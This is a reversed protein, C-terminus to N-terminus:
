YAHFRSGISHEPKDLGSFFRPQPDPLNSIKVSSGQASDAAPLVPLLSVDDVWATGSIRSDDPNSSRLRVVCMELVSVQKPAEWTLSVRTWPTTGTVQATTKEQVERNEPTLLTFFIGRDTTLEKAKLWASFQYIFGSEVEVRECVGRFYLNKTGDFRIRLSRTGSHKINEDYDIVSGLLPDIRWAFGAGTVGTEFGGDWVLSGEPDDTKSINLLPIAQTWVKHAEVTQGRNLLGEVFHLTEPTGLKPHIELLRSWAKLALDARGEDTLLRIVDLYVSAIPPLDREFIGDLNPELRRFLLFADVGRKPDKEVAHRIEMFASNMEGQRLLFNGYRWAVEPSAPYTQQAQLFAKRAASPDSAELFSAMDLWMDTSQPELSLATKYAQLARQPDTTGPDFELFRALLYWNRANEPELRTAREYGRLTGLDAYHIAMANRIGFYSVMGAIAFASFLLITRFVRGINLAIM